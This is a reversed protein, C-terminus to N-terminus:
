SIFVFFLIFKLIYFNITLNLSFLSFFFFSLVKENLSLKLKNGIYDIINIKNMNKDIKFLEIVAETENKINEVQVIKMFLKLEKNEKNKFTKRFEIEFDEEYNLNSKNELANKKIHTKSLLCKLAYAPRTILDPHAPLIVISNLLREGYNELIKKYQILEETGYDIFLVSFYGLNEMREGNELENNSEFFENAEYKELVLARRWKQDRKSKALVLDFKTTNTMYNYLESDIEDDSILVNAYRQLSDLLNNITEIDNEKQIFFNTTNFVSSVKVGLLVPSCTFSPITRFHKWKIVQFTSNFLRTRQISNSMSNNLTCTREQYNKNKFIGQQQNNLSYMSNRQSVSTLNQLVEDEEEDGINTTPAITSCDSSSIYSM